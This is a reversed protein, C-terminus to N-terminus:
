IAANNRKSPDPYTFGTFVVEDKKLNHVAEEKTIRKSTRDSYWRRIIEPEEGDEDIDRTIVTQGRPVNEVSEICGNWFTVTIEKKKAM